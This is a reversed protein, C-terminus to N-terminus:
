FYVNNYLPLVPFWRQLVHRAWSESIVVEGQFELEELPQTGYVLATLANISLKVIPKGSSKTAHLRNDESRIFFIGNNWDCLEDKIEVTLFDEGSAPLDRVGEIVDVVRVMWPVERIVKLEVNRVLDM